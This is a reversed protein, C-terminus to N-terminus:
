ATRAFVVVGFPPIVIAASSAFGHLRAGNATISGSNGVPAPTVFNDSNFLEIWAGAVPLSLDYSHYASEALSAVV